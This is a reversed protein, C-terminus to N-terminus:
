LAGLPKFLPKNKLSRSAKCAFCDVDNQEITKDCMECVCASGDLVQACFSPLHRAFPVRCAPPSHVSTVTM